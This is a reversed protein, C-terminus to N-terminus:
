DSGVLFVLVLGLAFQKWSMARAQFRGWFRNLIALGFTAIMASTGALKLPNVGATFLAYAVNAAVAWLTVTLLIAVLGLSSSSFRAVNM